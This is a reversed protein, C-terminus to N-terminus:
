LKDFFEQPIIDWAVQLCSELRQRNYESEGTYVAVEPFIKDRGSRGAQCRESRFLRNIRSFM